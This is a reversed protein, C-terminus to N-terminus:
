ARNNRRLAREVDHSYHVLAAALEADDIEAFLGKLYTFPPARSHRFVKAPAMFNYLCLTAAPARFAGAAARTKIKKQTAGM